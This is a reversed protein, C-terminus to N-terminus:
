FPRISPAFRPGHGSIKLKNKEFVVHGGKSSGERGGGGFDHQETRAFQAFLHQDSQLAEANFGHCYVAVVVCGALLHSVM